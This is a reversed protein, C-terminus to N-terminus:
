AAVPLAATGPTCWAAPLLARPPISVGAPFLPRVISLVLQISTFLGECDVCFNFFGSARKGPHRKAGSDQKGQWPQWTGQPVNAHGGGQASPFTRTRELIIQIQIFAVAPARQAQAAAWSGSGGWARCLRVFLPKNNKTRWCLTLGKRYVKDCCHDM